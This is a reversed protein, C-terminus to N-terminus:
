DDTDTTPMNDDVTIVEQGEYVLAHNAVLVARVELLRTYSSDRQLNEITADLLETPTSLVNALESKAEGEGAVVFGFIDRIGYPRLKKLGEENVILYLQAQAIWDLIQQLQFATRAWLVYPNYEAMCQSNDIDLEELRVRKDKTLGEIMALSFNSPLMEEAPSSQRNSAISLKERAFKAIFTTFIDPQLGIGFGMVALLNSAPLADPSTYALLHRVVASVVIALLVHYSMFYFLIPQIDFTNIRKILRFSVIFYAGLAAMSITLFTDSQYAVLDGQSLGAQPCLFFNWTSLITTSDSGLFAGLSFLFVLISFFAVPISYRSSTLLRRESMERFYHRAIVAYATRGLPTDEIASFLEHHRQAATGGIYCVLPITATLIVAFLAFLGTRYDQVAVSLVYAIVAAVIAPIAWNLIKQTHSMIEKCEWFIVGELLGASFHRKSTSDIPELHDSATCGNSYM